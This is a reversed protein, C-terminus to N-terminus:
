IQRLRRIIVNANNDWYSWTHAAHVFNVLKPTPLIEFFWQVMNFLHESLPISTVSKWGELVSRGVSLSPWLSTESGIICSLSINLCPKYNSRWLLLLLWGGCGGGVLEEKLWPSICLLQQIHTCLISCLIFTYHNWIRIYMYWSHTQVYHWLQFRFDPMLPSNHGLRTEKPHDLNHM